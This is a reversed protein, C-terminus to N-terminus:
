TLSCLNDISIFFKALLELNILEQDPSNHGGYTPHLEM